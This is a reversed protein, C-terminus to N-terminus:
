EPLDHKLEQVAPEVAEPSPKRGEWLWTAYIKLDNYLSLVVPLTVLTVLTAIFMGYAVSVAMPVLFQAQMSRELILPGLGAITTFSTLIIPRFRSLCSEYLANGFPRGERLLGNFASVLVLSDNVMIGILAIIGFASLLSIIANHAWHGWIVGILGLPIMAFVILAQGLSRFTYTIIIVMLALVIPLVKKGSIQTKGSEARQGEFSVSVSPHRKLIAPLMRNEVDDLIASASVGSHAIDSEIRIERKGYLHQISKIGREVEYDAVQSLPIARGDPTRIRMNEMSGVSGRDTDAYRVWVRVEDVGRQLRQVELGFFGQRVQRMVDGTTLGMQRGKDNLTLRVERNGKQDSSVVETLEPNKELEAILEVKAADLELLDNGLLSVSIPKGFPTRIGYILNEADPIRGIAKRFAKNVELIEISRTEGDLLIISVRGQHSMPGIAQEVKLVIDLSDERRGRYDASVAWAADEIHDLWQKTIRENTGVPFDLNVTVEDREIFPFFTTKVVGGKIAGMSVMFLAIPIALAFLRNNLSFILFPGYIRRKLFEMIRGMFTSIALLVRDIPGPIRDPHLDASHAIHGPLIFAAEMLSVLLTAIVVFALDPAFDGLKGDLFFFTGFAVVTTMVAAFVSPLVELTGDVAALLPPKGREYHQYINEAIVIGDDVLIGIVLIMGFLSMVNITMGFYSSMLFMGLFSVPISLAVWFSMRIRLFLALSVLVLIFGALGNKTLIDIRQQLMVSGDFVIDAKVAENRTNFDAVYQKVTGTIHLIDEDNTNNVVVVVSPDKDLYRRDPRESWRDEIDAVDSLFIMGGQPRSRIPLDRLDDAYLNKHRARVLLDETNTRITGGTVEVNGSAVARAVEEFTIGFSQMREEDLLVAIEEEPFGYLEVKSLGPMARLDNEVMRAKAKLTSLPVDGNLSFSIAFNMEELKFVNLEEMGEPFSPIAEVANKVDQLILDIDQGWKIEVVVRGQNEQATSSVKYVGTLGKLEEEIKYIIGDEVEEPSAGPYVANIIINRSESDPFFTSRLSLYGFTGFVLIAVMLVNGAFPYRVFYSIISKM